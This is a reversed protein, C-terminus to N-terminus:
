DVTHVVLRQGPRIISRTSLGNWGCLEEVEVRHRRAIASLTDGRRVNYYVSKPEPNREEWVALSQAFTGESARPVTLVYSGRPIQEGRLWPNLDLIRYYSVGAAQAVATVPLARREVPLTLQVTGAESYLQAGEMAIGYAEPHEVVLKAALARFVYRETERPLSLGYYDEQEQEKMARGVRQEGANYAALALPWSGLMERVDVLYELAARTAEDWDRREDVWSDQKLGYRRGTSRIFQWPGVAGAYSTADARLNSEILAVYKLDEPLGRERLEREIQPFFRPIRKLWLTTRVPSGLTVVLEQDLREVVEPRDLPVPEGCFEMADPIPLQLLHGIWDGPDAAVVVLPFLVLWLALTKHLSM